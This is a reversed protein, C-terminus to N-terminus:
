SRETRIIEEIFERDVREIFQAADSDKMGRRGDPLEVTFFRDVEAELVRAQARKWDQHRRFQTLKELLDCLEIVVKYEGIPETAEYPNPYEVTLQPESVV